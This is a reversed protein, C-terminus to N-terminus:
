AAAIETTSAIPVKMRDKPKRLSTWRRPATAHHGDLGPDLGLVPRRGAALVLGPACEPCGPGPLTLRLPIRAVAKMNTQAM